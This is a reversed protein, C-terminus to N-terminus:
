NLWSKCAGPLGGTQIGCYLHKTQHWSFLCLLCYPGEGGGRGGGVGSQVLVQVWKLVLLKLVHLIHREPLSPPLHPLHAQLGSQGQTQGADRRGAEESDDESHRIGSTPWLSKIRIDPLPWHHRTTDGSAHWVLGTYWSWIWMSCETQHDTKSLLLFRKETPLSALTHFPESWSLSWNINNRCDTTQIILTWQIFLNYLILQELGWEEGWRTYIWYETQAVKDSGIERHCFHYWLNLPKMDSPMVWCQM